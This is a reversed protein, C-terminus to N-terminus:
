ASGGDIVSFTQQSIRGLVVFYDSANGVAGCVVMEDVLPIPTIGSHLTMCPGIIMGPGLSPIEVFVTTGDVRVVKGIFIYQLPQQDVSSSGKEYNIYQTM